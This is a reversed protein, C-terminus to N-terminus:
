TKPDSKKEQCLWVEMEVIKRLTAISPFWDETEIAKEIARTLVEQDYEYFNEFWTWVAAKDHLDIRGRYFGSYLLFLNKNLAKFRPSIEEAQGVPKDFMNGFLVEFGTM